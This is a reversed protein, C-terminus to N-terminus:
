RANQPLSLQVDTPGGIRRLAGGYSKAPGCKASMVLLEDEFQPTAATARLDSAVGGARELVGLAALAIRFVSIMELPAGM